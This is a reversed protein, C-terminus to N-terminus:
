GGLYGGSIDARTTDEPPRVSVDSEFTDRNGKANKWDFSTGKELVNLKWDIYEAMEILHRDHEILVRSDKGYTKALEERLVYLKMKMGKLVSYVEEFYLKEKLELATAM